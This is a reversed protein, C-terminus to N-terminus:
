CNGSAIVINNSDIQVWKDVGGDIFHIFGAPLFERNPDSSCGTEPFVTTGTIPITNAVGGTTITSTYFTTLPVGLCATASDVASYFGLFPVCDPASFCECCAESITPIASYCLKIENVERYDWILYLYDGNDGAPMLFNATVLTSIGGNPLINGVSAALLGAIGVATNEYPPSGLVGNVRLYRMRNSSMNYDFTDVPKIKQSRITVTAGDPAISGTGQYGAYTPGFRSVLTASTYSQGLVNIFQDQQSQLPSVYTGQSYLFEQHRTQGAIDDSTLVVPIVRILDAIPCAISNIITVSATNPATPTITITAETVSPVDKDFTFSFAGTVPTPVHTHVVGNYTATITSSHTCSGSITVNGYSNGFDIIFTQAELLGTFLMEGGGCGYVPVEFPLKNTNPSLVYENMYPDYGGLKQRNFSTQYLDRFWSRMGVNSIVSLADAGEGGKLQIVSARKADTFYVDKGYHCFSEPNESIGYEEIRAVQTGLVEPVSTLIGGGTADTLINKGVGVYSIKDEQLTLIDTRRGHLVQIPGYSEECEKYNALGLNFENLKNVNNQPNFIGSYTISSDRRMQKYDQESVATVRNGLYFKKGILSDEIKYSEVGNFFSFCNFFGLNVIGDVVATQNTDDLTSGSLHFGNVIDFSEENEYYVEGITATPVTEFVIQAATSLVTIECEIKSEKRLRKAVSACQNTGSRIEFHMEGVNDKNETFQYKNKGDSNCTVSDSASGSTPHIICTEYPTLSPGNYDFLNSYFVQENPGSDDGFPWPGCDSEESINIGEGLWFEYLSDYDETAARSLEFNCTERGCYDDGMNDYQRRHLKIKFTVISGALIPWPKTISDAPDVYWVPYKLTKPYDNNDGAGTTRSRFGSTLITGVADYDLTFNDPLVKFYTGAPSSSHDPIQGYAFYQVDLVTTTVLIDPAGASDMKVRLDMGEKVKNANEGNVLIWAKGSISEEFFTTCIITEYDTETQKMVFKYKEAWSPPHM